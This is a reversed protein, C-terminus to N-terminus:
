WLAKEIYGAREKRLEDPSDKLVRRVRNLYRRGRWTSAALDVLGRWLSGDDIMVGFQHPDLGWDVFRDVVAQRVRECRDWERWSVVRPLRRDILQWAAWPMSNTALASDVRQVSLAILREPARSRRGLGRSLLFAALRDEDEADLFGDSREVALVWPDDGYDNPVADPDIGGALAVLLARQRVVGGALAAALESVRERLINLWPSLDDAPADSVATELAAVLRSVGFRRAVTNVADSRGAGIMAGIVPGSSDADVVAADLIEEVNTGPLRWFAVDTLLDRRRKLVAITADAVEALGEVLEKRALSQMGLEMARALAGGGELADVFRAPSRSWLAQSLRQAVPEGISKDDSTVDEIVFRFLHEDLEEIHNLARELVLDRAGRAQSPGLEELIEVATTLSQAAHDIGLATFLRSLPLMASRGGSVDGGVNRLFSRLGERDPTFLDDLLPELGSEFQSAAAVVADPIRFRQLPQRRDVLQLDFMESTTSRDAASFSCFRFGRRLRPWQQIWLALILDEDEDDAYRAIVKKHPSGYLAGLLARCASANSVGDSGSTPSTRVTLTTEYAQLSGGTPRRFLSTLNTASQLTALDAFDILLSHTWVCGPRSMEPAAWTRALVFKGSGSLPYGTLYGRVPLKASSGSVDSLVLMRRVDQPSPSASGALLRHGGDYGHLTQQVVFAASGLEDAM